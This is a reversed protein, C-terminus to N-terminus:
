KGHIKKDMLRALTIGGKYNRHGSFSESLIQWWGANTPFLMKNKLLSMVDSINKQKHINLFDLMYHSQGSHQFPTFKQTYIMRNDDDTKCTNGIGIAYSTNYCEECLAYLDKKHDGLFTDYRMRIIIDYEKELSNLILWHGIHQYSGTFNRRKETSKNKLHAGYKLAFLGEYLNYEIKPPEFYIINDIDVKSKEKVWTSYYFDGSPLNAIHNEQWGEYTRFEGSYCIAIKM